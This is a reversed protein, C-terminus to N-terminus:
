RCGSVNFICLFSSFVAQIITDAVAVAAQGDEGAVYQYYDQITRRIDAMCLPLSASFPVMRPFGKQAMDADEEYKYSKMVAEFEEKSGIRMPRYEDESLIQKFREGCAAMNLSAYREALVVM